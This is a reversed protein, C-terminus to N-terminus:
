PRTKLSRRGECSVYLKPVNSSSTRSQQEMQEVILWTSRQERKYVVGGKVTVVVRQKITSEVGM